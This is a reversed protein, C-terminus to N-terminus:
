KHQAIMIKAKKISQVIHRNAPCVYSCCGCEICDLAGYDKTLDWLNKNAALNIMCPMLGSPCDNVCNACRICASEELTKTEKESLLILGSTSKVIPVDNSYQALGMMPGGIIIKAPNQKLPSCYSILEKIPTGIRVLLNKPNMVSSGSVTVIREYLPKNQFVAEYIAFVTAVNHVVVGIHFPLKLQPVQRGLLNKILQKEGGQPYLSELSRVTIYPIEATQQSIKKIAEPKNNEIAIIVKIQGLCRRALDTGELIQETKELMLRHDATLYPECEACNIILTDVPEPPNLKLHSPFAAGGLGVIGSDYIITRLQEPTLANIEKRSRLTSGQTKDLGDNEIIVAKSRDLVPHYWNSISTVKGSVSAHITASIRAKSSALLQGKLVLDGPKVNLINCPAGTQQCLPIYVKKPIPLAEIPIDKTFHKNDELKIM